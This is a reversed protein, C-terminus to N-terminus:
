SYGEATAANDEDESRNDSEETKVGVYTKGNPRLFDHDPTTLIKSFDPVRSPGFFRKLIAVAANLGNGWATELNVSGVQVDGKWSRPNVHDIGIAGDLSLRRHGCDLDPNREFSSNLIAAISLKETLRRIDFNRDHDQTRTDGFLRELRDSGETIIHFLIDPSIDQCRAITFIINKIVAQCDAYLAGTICAAGHDIWLVTALHAFTALSEVQESLNMNIDIFPRLFTMFLTALFILMDRRNSAFADKPKELTELSALRQILGVAKPVNQKDAPDLLERAAEHSLEPLKSLKDITHQPTINTGYVLIGSTNRLLTAFGTQGDSLLCRFISIITTLLARKFIHKPDCTGTIGEKSTYLNLGKLPSLRRGLLSTLDIRQAMCIMHRARRFTADGDSALAWLPGSVKEGYAHDKWADIFTQIWKALDQAKETKDSPSVIVPVMAYNDTRTYSGIAVVTADSGFCVKTDLNQSAEGFLTDRIKEVSKVDTITTNVRHAHERCLGLIVRRRPCYRCKSNLALGDFAGVVGPIGNPYTIPFPKVDPSFFVTINHDIEEKTPTAMSALLQPIKHSRRVTSESPLGHSHNLAYLLKPGGLSKVLFSIDLERDTFGVRPNYLGQIARQLLTILSRASSGRRLSAVLLRRLGAIENTSLLMM